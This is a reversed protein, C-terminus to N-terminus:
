ELRIRDPWNSAFIHIDVIKLCSYGIIIIRKGATSQCHQNPSLFPMRDTFFSPTPKNTNRSGGDGKAGIFDLIFSRTGALGPGVPFHSNYFPCLSFIIIIQPESENSVYPATHTKRNVSESISQNTPQLTLTTSGRVALHPQPSSVVAHGSYQGHILVREYINPEEIDRPYPFMLTM